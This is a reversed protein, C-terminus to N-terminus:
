ANRRPIDTLRTVSLDEVGYVGIALLAAAWLLALVLLDPPISTAGTVAPSVIAQTTNWLTHFLMALLVSGRTNNYLVTLLVTLPLLSLGYVVLSVGAQSTGQTIFLPLHWATWIVALVVSAITANFRDQLLPLAMGRWGPEELGGRLFTLLVITVVGSAPPLRRPDLDGGLLLHVGVLAAVIGLPVLAAYGWWRAPVRWRVLQAAWPRLDDALWATLAAAVLPGFGGVLQLLSGASTRVALVVGWSGWTVLFTLVLFTSLRHDAVWHRLSSIVSVDGHEFRQCSFPLSLAIM